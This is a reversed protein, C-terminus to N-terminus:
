GTFVNKLVFWLNAPREALRRMYWPFWAEGYSILTRVSYGEAVLARENALSLERRERDIEVVVDGAVVAAGEPVRVATLRGSVEAAVRAEDVAQKLGKFTPENFGLGPKEEDQAGAFVPLRLFLTTALKKMNFQDLAFDIFDQDNPM